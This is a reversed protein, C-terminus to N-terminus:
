PQIPVPLGQYVGQRGDGAADEQNKHTPRPKTLPNAMRSGCMFMDPTSPKLGPHIVHEKLVENYKDRTVKENQDVFVIAVKNISQKPNVSVRDEM